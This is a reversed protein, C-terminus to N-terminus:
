SGYIHCTKRQFAGIFEGFLGETEETRVARTPRLWEVLLRGLQSGGRKKKRALHVSAFRQYDQRAVNGVGDKFQQRLEVRSVTDLLQVAGTVSVLFCPREATFSTGSVALPAIRNAIARPSDPAPWYRPLRRNFRRLERQM